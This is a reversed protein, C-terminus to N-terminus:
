RVAGSSASVMLNASDSPTLDLLRPLEKPRALLYLWRYGVAFLAGVVALVVQGAASSYPELYGTNFVFLYAAVLLTAVVVIRAETSAKARGKEVRRQAAVEERAATALDSLPEALNGAGESAALVLAAAVTDGVPDALNVSFNRLADPLPVGARLDAALLLVPARVPEPASPATAIITQELGAAGRLTAVLSETWAAIGDLRALRKGRAKDGGMLMGPLTWVALGALLAGVPWRTLGAVVAAAGLSAAVQVPGRGRVWRTLRGRGAAVPRPRRRLGDVLLLLGAALVAGCSMALM